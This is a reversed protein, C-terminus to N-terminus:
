QDDFPPAHCEEEGEDFLFCVGPALFFAEPERLGPQHREILYCRDCWVIREPVPQPHYSLHGPEGCLHCFGCFADPFQSAEPPRRGLKTWSDCSCDRTIKKM